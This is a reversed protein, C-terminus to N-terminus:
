HFSTTSFPRPNGFADTRATNMNPNDICTHAFGMGQYAPLMGNFRDSQQESNSLTSRTPRGIKMGATIGYGSSASQSNRTNTTNALPQRPGTGPARTSLPIQSRTAANRTTGPLHTRHQPTSSAFGDSVTLSILCDHSPSVVTSDLKPDQHLHCLLPKPEMM